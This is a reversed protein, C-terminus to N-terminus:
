KIFVKESYTTKDTIVRVMYFASAKNISISNIENGNCLKSTILQGLMNYISIEKVKNNSNVYITKEYAYISTNDISAENISNPAMGFHLIFRNANENASASFAYVPNQRLDHFTGSLIDELIISVSADFNSFETATLVVNDAFGIKINVPFAAPLSGFANISLENNDALTYVQPINNETSFLKSADYLNDYNNTANTNYAFAIEDSYTSRQAKIKVLNNIINSSKQFAQNNHVRNANTLNIGNTNLGKVFFAQMPSLYQSGGNLSIGGNQFSTYLQLADNWVRVVQGETNLSNITNWDLSSTYPNGVLTWAVETALAQNGTNLSGNFIVTPNPTSSTQTDAWVAYGIGPILPTSTNTILSGWNGAVYGKVYMDAQGLGLHFVNSTASQVPISLMHWKNGTIYLKVNATGNVTLLNNDLLSATGSANSELTLNNITTAGSVTPYNTTVPIIVNSFAVPLYDWNAANSWANSVAGSWTSNQPVCILTVPSSTTTYGDNDTAIATLTHTGTVGTYNVTYTSTSVGISSGDVFFEVQTVTGDLDSAAATIPTAVGSYSYANNSPSTISVIPAVNYTGTLSPITREMQIGYPGLNVLVPNSSVYQEIGLSPTGIQINLEYHFAGNTTIQAILVRNTDANVGLSGSQSSWASGTLIFSNATEQTDFVDLVGNDAPITADMGAISVTTVPSGSLLGDRTYLPIGMKPDNNTLSGNSITLANLTTNDDTKLVGFNGGCAAGVSIWSDIGTTFQKFKTKTYVPYYTGNNIDNYFYTSTTFKLNHNTTGYASQFKYGPLMDAYIRYTVSGVNLSGTTNTGNNDNAISDATNTIYYKEVVIKELGNQAQTFIGLFLLSLVILIKKM